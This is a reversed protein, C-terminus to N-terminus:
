DKEFLRKGRSGHFFTVPIWDIPLSDKGMRNSPKDDGIEFFCIYRCKDEPIGKALYQLTEQPFKSTPSFANEPSKLIGQFRKECDLSAGM